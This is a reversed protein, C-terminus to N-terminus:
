HSDNDQKGLHNQEKSYYALNKSVSMFCSTKLLIFM